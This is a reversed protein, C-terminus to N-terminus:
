SVLLGGTVWDGIVSNWSVVLGDHTSPDQVIFAAPGGPINRYDIFAFQNSISLSIISITGLIFTTTIYAILQYSYRAINRRTWLLHGCQLFITFHIGKCNNASDWFVFESEAWVTSYQVSFLLQYSHKRGSNQLLARMLPPDTWTSCWTTLRTAAVLHVMSRRRSNIGNLRVRIILNGTHTAVM